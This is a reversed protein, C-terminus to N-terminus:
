PSSGGGACQGYWGSGYPNAAIVSLADTWVLGTSSIRTRHNWFVYSNVCVGSSLPATQDFDGFTGKVAFRFICALGCGPVEFSDNQASNARCGDHRALVEYASDGSGFLSANNPLLDPGALCARNDPVASIAASIDHLYRQGGHLFNMFVMCRSQAFATACQGILEILADRWAEATYTGGDSVDQSRAGNFGLSSEQFIFGEVRLRADYRAAAARLMAKYANVVVDEWMFCTAAGNGSANPASHAAQLYKPCPNKIPSAAFSKFEVFLWLQCTPNSSASIASLVKDFSSFDYTGASPEVENWTQRWVIGKVGTQECLMAADGPTDSYRTAFYHGYNAKRPQCTTSGDPCPDSDVVTVQFKPLKKVHTGDSVAIEIDEHSGIDTKRPTGSLRGTQYDFTAWTPKSSIRFSLADGDPDSASPEFNFSRGVVAEDSPSGAIRPAANASQVPPDQPDGVPPIVPDSSPVPNQETSSPTSAIPDSDNCASILTLALACIVGRAWCGGIGNDM